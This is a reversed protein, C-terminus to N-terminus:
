RVFVTLESVDGCRNVDPNPTWSSVGGCMTSNYNIAARFTYLEGQRLNGVIPSCARFTTAGPRLIMQLECEVRSGYDVLVSWPTGSRKYYFGVNEIWSSTGTAGITLNYSCGGWSSVNYMNPGIKELCASANTTISLQSNIWEYPSASAFSGIVLLALLSLIKGKM